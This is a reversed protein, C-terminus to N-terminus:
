TSHDVQCCNRVFWTCKKKNVNTRDDLNADHLIDVAIWSNQWFLGSFPAVEASAQGNIATRVHM